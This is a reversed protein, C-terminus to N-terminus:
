SPSPNRHKQIAQIEAWLTAVAPDLQIAGKAMELKLCINEIQPGYHLEFLRGQMQDEQLEAHLQIILDQVNKKRSALHEALSPPPPVVRKVPQLQFWDIVNGADDVIGVERLKKGIVELPDGTSVDLSGRRCSILITSALNVVHQCQPCTYRHLTGKLLEVIAGPDMWTNISSYTTVRYPHKCSPCEINRWRMSTM